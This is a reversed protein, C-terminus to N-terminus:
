TRCKKSKGREEGGGFGSGGSSCTDLIHVQRSPPPPALLQIPPPPKKKTPIKVFIHFCTHHRRSCSATWFQRQRNARFLPQQARPLPHHHHSHFLPIPPAPPTPTCECPAGLATESKDVEIGLWHCFLGRSLVSRSEKCEEKSGLPGIKGGTEAAIGIRLLDIM